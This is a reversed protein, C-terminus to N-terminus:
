KECDFSWSNLVGQNACGYVMHETEHFGGNFYIEAM